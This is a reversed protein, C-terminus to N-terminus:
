FLSFLWFLFPTVVLATGIPTLLNDDLYKRSHGALGEFLAAVLSLFVSVIVYWPIPYVPILPSGLLLLILPSFGVFCIVLSAIFFCLSGELSKDRNYFLKHKGYNKGGYYACTDGIGWCLIIVLYTIAILGPSRFTELFLVTVLLVAASSFLAMFSPIYIEGPEVQRGLADFTKTFYTIIGLKVYIIEYALFAFALAFTIYMGLWHGCIFVLFVVVIGAIINFLKRSFTTISQDKGETKKSRKEGIIVLVVMLVDIFVISFIVKWLYIFPNETIIQLFVLILSSLITGNPIAVLIISWLLSKEEEM